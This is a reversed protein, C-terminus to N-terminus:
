LKLKITIALLAYVDPLNGSVTIETLTQAATALTMLLWLCRM